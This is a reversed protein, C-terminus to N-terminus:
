PGLFSTFQVQPRTRPECFKRFFRVSGSRPMVICGGTRNQGVTDPVIAIDEHETTYFGMASPCAVQYIHTDSGARNVCLECYLLSVHEIGAYLCVVRSGVYVGVFDVHQHLYFVGINCTDFFIPVSVREFRLFFFSLGISATSHNPHIICRGFKGTHYLNYFLPIWDTM